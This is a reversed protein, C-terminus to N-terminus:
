MAAGAYIERLSLTINMDEICISDGDTLVRDTWKGDKKEFHDIRVRDTCVLLIHKLGRVARFRQVGKVNKAHRFSNSRQAVIEPRTFTPGVVSDAPGVVLDPRLIEHDPLRLRSGTFGVVVDLRETAVRMLSGFNEFIGRKNGTARRATTVRKEAARAVSAGARDVIEVPLGEIMEPYKEQFVAVISGWSGSRALASAASRLAVNGGWPAPLRSWTIGFRLKLLIGDIVQRANLEPSYSLVRSNILHEIDQFQADNLCFRKEAAWKAALEARDGLMLLQHNPSSPQFQRVDLDGVWAPDAAGLVRIIQIPSIAPMVARPWCGGLRMKRRLCLIPLVRARSLLFRQPNEPLRAGVHGFADV